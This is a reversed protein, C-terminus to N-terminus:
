FKKRTQIAELIKKQNAIEAVQAEQAKSNILMEEQLKVIKKQLEVSDTQLQKMKKEANTIVGLQAAILIDTHAEEVEPTLDELFTKAKRTEEKSLLPLANIDNNFILLHVVTEDSEKKSKREINVVYDYKGPSIDTLTAEKYINFGKDKNFMGKEERGKYGMRSLKGILANEVAEPPFNYNIFFCEQKKKKYEITGEKAQANSLFYVSLFIVSFFFKRM